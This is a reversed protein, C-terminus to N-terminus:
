QRTKNFFDIMHSRLTQDSNFEKLKDYTLCELIKIRQEKWSENKVDFNVPIEIGYMVVKVTDKVEALEMFIDALGEASVWWGVNISQTAILENDKNFFLAKSPLSM